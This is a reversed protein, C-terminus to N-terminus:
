FAAIELFRNAFASVNRQYEAYTESERQLEPYHKDSNKNWVLMIKEALDAANEPSFLYPNGPDQERHVEIDSLILDKGLAKAEEVSTSWGENLSPQIMATSMRFISLQHERPILGLLYVQQRIKNRTLMNLVDNAYHENRYDVINGTCVLPITVGKSKLIGLADFLTGHNKTPAFLNAVVLFKEPLEYTNRVSGFERYDLDKSTIAVAFPMVHTKGKTVPFLNWCDKECAKSSLIIKSTNNAIFSIVAEAQRNIDKRAGDPFHHYQFDAIWSGANLKGKCDSLTVPFVFDLDLNLLYNEVRPNIRNGFKRELFWKVKNTFSWEPYISETNHIIVKLSRLDDLIKFNQASHRFLHVELDKGSAIRDLAYLINSIYQIGGQWGDDGVAFLGIRKINSTM